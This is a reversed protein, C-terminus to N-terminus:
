LGCEGIQRRSELVLWPEELGEPGASVLALRSYPHVPMRYWAADRSARPLGNTLHSLGVRDVERFRGMKEFYAITPDIEDARGM